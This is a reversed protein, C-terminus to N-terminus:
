RPDMRQSRGFCTISETLGHGNGLHNEFVGPRTTEHFKMCLVTNTRRTYGSENRGDETARMGWSFLHHVLQNKDLLAQVVSLRCLLVGFATGYEVSTLAVAIVRVNGLAPLM